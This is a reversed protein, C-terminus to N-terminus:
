TAPVCALTAFRIGSRARHKCVRSRAYPSHAEPGAVPKGSDQKIRNFERQFERSDLEVQVSLRCPLASFTRGLSWQRRQHKKPRHALPGFTELRYKVMSHCHGHGTRTVNSLQQIASFPPQLHCHRPDSFESQPLQEVSSAQRRPRGLRCGGRPSFRTPIKYM